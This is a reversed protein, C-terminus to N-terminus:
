RHHKKPKPGLTLNVPGSATAGAAPSSSKVILAGLPRGKRAKPQTVKGLACGAAVLASKAKALSLGALKPVKCASPAPPIVIPQSASPTTSGTGGSGGGTGGSGGEAPPPTDELYSAASSCSSRNRAADIASATIFTISNDPVAIGIGAGALEAATGTALQKGNCDLGNFLTVATGADASGKVKPNNDNAGASPVTGFLTPISPMVTDVAKGELSDLAKAIDLRGGTTTKGTLSPIADVGSLLADRVQTATAAPESSFLLGAAGTVQPAAMSTGQLFSYSPPTSLPAYCSLRLDDFWIGNTATPSPGATFGFRLKVAHGGLGKIPATNFPAMAFSSSATSATNTFAPVGDSLVQYSFTGGSGGSRYREGDLTCAGVGAPLAAGTTLTVEHVSGAAPAGGPSDTMGFSTLPGDGSAARAFGAAGSTWRSSFDNTEFDDDIPGLKAPYTSLIETGPAGLDVSASGWDSFGALHDAQDTAAVCVVNDIAGVIGSTVPEYDCPYHHVVENDKGDNGASIVFLTGPNHAFADRATSNFTTGGLSMNAVRAGHSGAYNIALIQSSVPCITGSDDVPTPSPDTYYGCVRLPMIRVDQAVGTIGVGDNGAAGMTGATHVGHGGDILNDDTPDGDITPSNASPGVFDAGHFDDIIGNSDDDGGGPPDAPNEWAVPGLDPSDFRYGTDLDAIVTSPSGITRDWALPTNIDAGTIAGNFGDIGGGLNQLGWLQDFEPDDPVSNLTSYGDRAVAQVKPEEKLSALADGISQGDDLRVLQFLPSGLQNVSLVEAEDRASERIAQDAGPAWEVILRNPSFDVGSPVVAASSGPQEELASAPSAAVLLGLAVAAISLRPRLVSQARYAAIAGGPVWKQVDKL